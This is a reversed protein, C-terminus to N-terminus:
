SARYLSVGAIEPLKQNMETAPIGSGDSPILNIFMNLSDIGDFEIILFNQTSFFLVVMVLGELLLVVSIYM